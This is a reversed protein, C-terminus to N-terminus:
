INTGAQDALPGIRKFRARHHEMYTQHRGTLPLPKEGLSEKLIARADDSLLDSLFSRGDQDFTMLAADFAADLHAALLIGNFVDLRQDDNECMAWPRIHSARLLPRDSIGTIPCRGNWYQDLADRFIDQGIRQRVLREVETADPTKKVRARFVELPRNPLSMSLQFIREALVQLALTDKASIRIGDAHYGTRRPLFNTLLEERIVPDLVTVVYGGSGPAIVLEGPALSSRYTFNSGDDGVAIEFGADRAAKEILVRTRYDIM